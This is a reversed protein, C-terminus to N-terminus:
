AGTACQMDMEWKKRQIPIAITLGLYTLAVFAPLLTLRFEPLFFWIASAGVVRIVAAVIFLRSGFAWTFVYFDICYIIAMMLIQAEPYFILPVLVIPFGLMNVTAHTQGALDALPNNKPFAEAGALRSFPIAVPVIFFGGILWIFKATDLPLVNAVILVFIWYVLGSWYFGINWKSRTALDIQLDQINDSKDM